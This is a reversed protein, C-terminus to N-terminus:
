PLSPHPQGPSSHGPGCPATSTLSQIPMSPWRAPAIPPHCLCRRGAGQGREVPLLAPLLPESARRVPLDGWAPPRLDMGRSGSLRCLGSRPVPGGVRSVSRPGFSSPKKGRSSWGGRSSRCRSILCFSEWQSRWGSAGAIGSLPGSTCCRAATASGPRRPRCRRGTAHGM